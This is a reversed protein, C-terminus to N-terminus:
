PRPHAEFFRWITATADFAPNPTDGGRYGKDGGPWAHGNDDILLTQVGLGDPCTWTHVLAQPARSTVPDAKCGDAQAWYRGQDLAPRAPTGDWSRRGPGGPAGGAPPVNHDLAGNIALLSVPAVARPEDGFLTGVVPAIAAVQDALAIGARHAMMAGNSMGTLYVRRPDVPLTQKLHAILARLYGVDDVRQKMAYGCCHGANWTLLRDGFRGTGQPYVVIFNASRAQDTFGTMRETIAANGGGGHLVLVLPYGTAPRPGSPLRILHHREVGDHTLTGEGGAHAAQGSGADAATCASVGVLLGLAMLLSAAASRRRRRSRGAHRAPLSNTNLGPTM